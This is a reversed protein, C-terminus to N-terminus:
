LSSRMGSICSIRASPMSRYLRLGNREEGLRAFKQVLRLLQEVRVMPGVFRAACSIERAQMRRL